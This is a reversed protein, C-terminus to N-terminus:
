MSSVNITEKLVKYIAWCTEPIFKSLLQHSIITSYRLDKYDRGTALFRLTAILREEVSVAPRMNTDKKTIFPRVKSLLEYFTEKDMRLFNRVDDFDLLNILNMHSLTLREKLWQKMWIRKKRQKKTEIACLLALSVVVKQQKSLCPAM